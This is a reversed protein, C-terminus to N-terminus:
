EGMVELTKSKGLYERIRYIGFGILVVPWFKLIQELFGHVLENLFLLCGMITLLTGTWLAEKRSDRVPTEVQYGSAELLRRKATHYAEIPMYFYFATTMLGFLPEFSGINRSNSISILFGFILVHVFAKLYEGNYIAGVGPIFGLGFAIGPSGITATSSANSVPPVTPQSSSLPASQTSSTPSANSAGPLASQTPKQAFCDLCIEEDGVRVLCQSCFPRLCKSCALKAAVEPHNICNM